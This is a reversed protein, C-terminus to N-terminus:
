DRKHVFVFFRGFEPRDAEVTIATGDTFELRIGNKERIIQKVTKGELERATRKNLLYKKLENM